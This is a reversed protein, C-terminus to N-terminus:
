ARIGEKMANIIFPQKGKISQLENVSIIKVDTLVDYQLDIEYCARLITNEKRWDYDHNLVLLIDYDSDTGAEDRSRSGFLIVQNIEDKFQRVLRKKLEQVITM